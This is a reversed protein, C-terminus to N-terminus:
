FARGDWPEEQGPRRRRDNWEIGGQRHEHQHRRLEELALELLAVAVALVPSSTALRTVSEIIRTKM